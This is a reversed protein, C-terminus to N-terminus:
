VIGLFLYVIYFFHIELIDIQPDDQEEIVPSPTTFKPVKKRLWHNLRRRYWDKLRTFKPVTLRIGEELQDDDNSSASLSSPYEVIICLLAILLTARLLKM